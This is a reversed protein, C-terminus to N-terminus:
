MTANKEYRPIQDSVILQLFRDEPLVLFSTASSAARSNQSATEARDSSSTHLPLRTSTDMAMPEQTIGQTNNSTASPSEISPNRVTLGISTTRQKQRYILGQQEQMHSSSPPLGTLGQPGITPNLVVDACAPSHARTPAIDLNDPQATNLFPQPSPSRPSRGRSRPRPAGPGPGFQRYTARPDQSPRDNQIAARLSTRSASIMSLRDSARSQVSLNGSSHDAHSSGVVQNATSPGPAWPPDVSLTAQTPTLPITDSQPEARGRGLPHNASAPVTSAAVLYEGIWGTCASGGLVSSSGARDGPFSPEPPKPSRITRPKSPWMFRWEGLKRVLYAFLSAWHRLFRKIHSKTPRFRRLIELLTRLLSAM